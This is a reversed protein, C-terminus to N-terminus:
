QPNIGASALKVMDIGGAPTLNIVKPGASHFQLYSEMSFLSDELLLQFAIFIIFCSSTQTFFLKKSLTYFLLAIGFNCLKWNFPFIQTIIFDFLSEVNPKATVTAIKFLKLRIVIYSKNCIQMSTLIRIHYLNLELIHKLLPNEGPSLM